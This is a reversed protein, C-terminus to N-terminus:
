GGQLQSCLATPRSGVVQLGLRLMLRLDTVNCQFYVALAGHTIGSFHRRGAASCPDDWGHVDHVDAPRLVHPRWEYFLPGGRCPHHVACIQVIHVLPHM